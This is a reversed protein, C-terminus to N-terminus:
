NSQIYNQYRGLLDEYDIKSLIQRKIITIGRKKGMYYNFRDLKKIHRRFFIIKNKDDEFDIIIENKKLMM